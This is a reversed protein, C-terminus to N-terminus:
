RRRKRKVKLTSKGKRNNKMDVGLGYRFIISINRYNSRLNDDVQFDNVPVSGDKAGLFTQGLTFRLETEFLQSGVTPTEIGIGFDLGFLWRNGDRIYNNELDGPQDDFVVEYELDVNSEITGKGNIWYNINPGISMFWKGQINEIINLDFQKKLLINLEAFNYAANNITGDSVTEIKRGKRSYYSEVSWAYDNELPFQIFAGVRYGIKFKSDYIDRDDSDQFSVTYVQPGALLGINFKQASANVIPLCTIFLLITIRSAM